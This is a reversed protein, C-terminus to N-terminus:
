DVSRLIERRGAALARLIMRTVVSGPARREFYGVDAVVILKGRARSIAVNILNQATSHAGRESLLVGPKMPEADVTDLIIVDREQGQFRHVTSCEIRRGEGEDGAREKLRARIARAQDVYPTIIAVSEAGAGVARRALDVCVDATIVNVRSQGGSGPQCTTRGDTDLVVLPSGAYPERAAIGERIAPDGGHQLRGAYFLDSVLEGILPHMRYQVDLMAVLPSSLPDAVAVEFINRGMVKRVYEENSQVISPLQCPDGVIVTKRRGLCAAYFLAPLVAMSAEEVILVDFWQEAMLPSFYGNTLTALVLSAGDVVDREKNLLAKKSEAIATDYLAAARVLRAMRRRIVGALEGPSRDQLGAARAPIFIEELRV